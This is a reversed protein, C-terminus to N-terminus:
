EWPIFTAGCPCHCATQTEPISFSSLLDGFRSAHPGRALRSSSTLTRTGASSGRPPTRFPLSCTSMDSCLPSTHKAPPSIGAQAGPALVAAGRAHLQPLPGLESGISGLLSSSDSSRLHLEPDEPSPADPLVWHCSSLVTSSAPDLVGWPQLYLEWTLLTRSLLTRSM